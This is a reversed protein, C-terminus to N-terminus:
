DFDPAYDPCGPKHAVGVAAPLGNRVALLEYKADCHPCRDMVLAAAVDVRALDHELMPDLESM